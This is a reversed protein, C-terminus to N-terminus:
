PETGSGARRAPGGFLYDVNGLLLTIKSGPFRMWVLSSCAHGRHLAIDFNGALRFHLRDHLDALAEADGLLVQDGIAVGLGLHREGVDVAQLGLRVALEDEDGGDVRRRGAFALRRRRNAKAVAEVADASSGHHRQALRGEAGAEAHLTARGAAAIGLDNRHLVDVEVERTVEVGDGRRVVQERGEDVVVDVPAVLEADVGAADDPAADHVHVVACQALDDAREAAHGVAIRALRAEVDRDGGLDHGDEAERGRDGIELAADALDDDGVLLVLGGYEGLIELRRAGHHHQQLVRQLGVQHLRELVVRGEHM